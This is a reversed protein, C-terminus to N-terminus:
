GLGTGGVREHARGTFDVVIRWTTERTDHTQVCALAGITLFGGAFRTRHSFTCIDGFAELDEIECRFFCLNCFETVCSPSAGCADGLLGLLLVGGSERVIEMRDGGKEACFSAFSATGAFM